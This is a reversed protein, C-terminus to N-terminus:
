SRLFPNTRREAGITTDAGHGPYVVTDDPLVMLKAYISSILQHHNGSPFDTRGVSGRFLTDGSFVVGWGQLCIGGPSHGPTHLVVFHLEGVDVSDGDRLLRDPTSPCAVVLSLRHMFKADDTHIAVEAGTAKKVEKVAAAHDPHGHTLVILTIDLGLEDVSSLIKKGSAGPDIIMGRRNSESGVIYCNTEIPGVILKRLIL